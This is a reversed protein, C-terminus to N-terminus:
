QNVREQHFQETQVATEFASQYYRVDANYESVVQELRLLEMQSASELEERASFLASVTESFIEIHKVDAQSVKRVEDEYQTIHTQPM